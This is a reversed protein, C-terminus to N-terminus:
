KSLYKIDSLLSRLSIKVVKRKKGFSLNKISSDLNKGKKSCSYKGGKRKYAKVLQGSAYASPWVKSTRKVQQKLRNYLNKNTPGCKKGFGTRWNVFDPQEFFGEKKMKEPSYRWAAYGRSKRFAKQIKIINEIKRFFNVISSHNYKSALTIATEGDNDTKNVDAGHEKVLYKVVNLHNRMSAIMLATEGDNDTKNVDAGHEVLFQVIDLRGKASAEMLSTTGYYDAKNVDAGNKVLIEVIDLDGIESAIILPTEGYRDTQNIDFGPQNVISKVKDLNFIAEFIDM